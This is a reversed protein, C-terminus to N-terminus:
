NKNIRNWTAKLFDDIKNDDFFCDIKDEFQVERSVEYLGEVINFVAQGKRIFPHQKTVNRMIESKFKEFDKKEELYKKHREYSNQLNIWLRADIGLARELSNSFDTTVDALGNLVNEVDISSKGMLVALEKPSIGRYEIEDKIMEGPHILNSPFLNNAIMDDPIGKIHIKMEENM